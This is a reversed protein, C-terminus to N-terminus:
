SRYRRKISSLEEEGLEDNILKSLIERKERRSSHM